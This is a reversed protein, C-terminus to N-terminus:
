SITWSAVPCRGCASATSEEAPLFGAATARPLSPPDFPPRARAAFSEGLFREAIALFAARARQFFHNPSATRTGAPRRWCSNRLGGRRRGNAHEERTRLKEYLHDLRAIDDQAVPWLTGRGPGLVILDTVRGVRPAVEARRKASYVAWLTQWLPAHRSHCAAMFHAEAHRQGSGIAAFGAGDEVTLAGDNVVYLHAQDDGEPDIGTIIAQLDPMEFDILGRALEMVLEAHMEQQRSIFTEHDLGLPALLKSAARRARAKDYQREFLEAVQRVTWLDAANSTMEARVDLLIEMQLSLDGAILVVASKSLSMLAVKHQHHEFQVDGATVMRESAVVAANGGSCLAAVCVTM